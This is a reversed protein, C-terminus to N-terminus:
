VSENETCPEYDFELEDVSLDELDLPLDDRSMESLVKLYASKAEYFRREITTLGDPMPLGTAIGQTLVYKRSKPLGDGRSFEQLARQADALSTTLDEVFGV